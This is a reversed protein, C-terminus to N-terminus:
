PFFLLLFFFPFDHSTKIQWALSSLALKTRGSASASRTSPKRTQYSSNVNRTASPSRLEISLPNADDLNPKTTTLGDNELFCHGCRSNAPKTACSVSSRLIIRGTHCLTESTSTRLCENVSASRIAALEASPM